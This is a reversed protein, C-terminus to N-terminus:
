RQVACTEANPRLLPFPSGFHCLITHVMRYMQYFVIFDAYDRTQIRVATLNTNPTCPALSMGVARLSGKEQLGISLFM